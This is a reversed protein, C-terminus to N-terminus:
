ALARGFRDGLGRKEALLGGPSVEKGDCTSGCCGGQAGSNRGRDQARKPESGGAKSVSSELSGARPGHVPERMFDPM